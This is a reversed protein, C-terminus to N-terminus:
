KTKKKQNKTSQSSSDVHMHTYKRSEIAKQKSEVSRDVNFKASISKTTNTFKSLNKRVRDRNQRNLPFSFLALSKIHSSM